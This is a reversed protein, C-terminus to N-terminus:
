KDEVFALPCGWLTAVEVKLCAGAKIEIAGGERVEPRSCRNNTLWPYWGPPLNFTASGAVGCSPELSPHTRKFYRTINIRKPAGVAMGVYVPIDTSGDFQNPAYFIVAGTAAVKSEVTPPEATHGIAVFLALPIFAFRMVWYKICKGFGGSHQLWITMPSVGFHAHLTFYTRAFGLSHDWPVNQSAIDLKHSHVVALASVGTAGTFSLRPYLRGGDVTAM